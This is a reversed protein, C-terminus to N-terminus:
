NNFAYGFFVALLSVLPTSSMCLYAADIAAYARGSAERYGTAAKDTKDCLDKRMENLAHVPMGGEAQRESAYLEWQGLYQAVGPMTWPNVQSSRLAGWTLRAALWFWWMAGALAASALAPELSWRALGLSGMGAAGGLLVMLLAHARSRAQNLGDLSFKAAERSNFEALDIEDMHHSYNKAEALDMLKNLKNSNVYIYSQALNRMLLDLLVCKVLPLSGFGSGSLVCLSTLLALPERPKCIRLRLIM